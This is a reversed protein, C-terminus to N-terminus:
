RLLNFFITVREYEVDAGPPGTRPVGKAPGVIAELDVKTMGPHLRIDYAPTTADGSSHLRQMGTLAVIKVQRQSTSAALRPKLTLLNHSPPLHITITQQSVLSSPPIDLCFDPQLSLSAHTTIRVNRILATSSDQGPRRLVSDMPSPGTHQYSINSSSLDQANDAMTGFIAHSPAQSTSMSMPPENKVLGSLGRASVSPNLQDSTSTTAVSPGPSDLTKLSRTRPSTSVNQGASGSSTGQHPRSSEQNAMINASQGNPQTITNSSEPMRVTSEGAIPPGSTSMKLKIRPMELTDDTQPNPVLKKAEAVRQGFYSELIGALASIESDDENYERANRWIYGVEEEFSQWTPYATTKSTNKRSDTGRVKKQISRLSVPHQILEYYDRYLTRDPKGIFPYAVEQGDDDQLRTLESMIKDQASQLSDGEFDVESEQTEPAEDEDSDVHSSARSSMEVLDDESFKQRKARSRVDPSAAAASRRKSSM